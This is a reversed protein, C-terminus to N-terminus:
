ATLAVMVSGWDDVLGQRGSPSAWRVTRRVIATRDHRPYHLELMGIHPRGPRASSDKPMPVEHVPIKLYLRERALPPEHRGNEVVPAVM